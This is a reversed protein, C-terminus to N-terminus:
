SSSLVYFHKYIKSFKTTLKQGVGGGATNALKDATVADDALQATDINLGAEFNAQTIAKARSSDSTDGVIVVDDVALSTIVDLGSPKEDQTYAM